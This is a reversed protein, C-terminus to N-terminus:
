AYDMIAGGAGDNRTLIDSQDLKLPAHLREFGHLGVRLAAVMEVARFDALAGHEDAGGVVADIVILIDRRAGGGCVDVDELGGGRRGIDGDYIVGDNKLRLAVVQHDALFKGDVINGLRRGSIEGILSSEFEHNGIACLDALDACRTGGPHRQRLAGHITAALAVGNSEGELRAFVGHADGVAHRVSVILGHQAYDRRQRRLADNQGTGRADLDGAFTERWSAVLLAKRKKGM